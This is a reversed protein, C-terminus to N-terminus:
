TDARLCRVGILWIIILLSMFVIYTITDSLFTSLRMQHSGRLNVDIDSAIKPILYAMIVPRLVNEELSKVFSWTFIAAFVTISLVKNSANFNSVVRFPNLRM